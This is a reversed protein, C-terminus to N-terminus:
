PTDKLNRIAEAFWEANAATVGTNAKKNEVIEAAEEFAQNRAEGQLDEPRLSALDYLKNQRRLREIEECQTLYAQLCEAIHGNSSLGWGNAFLELIKEAKEETDM